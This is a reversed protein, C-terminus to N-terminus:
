KLFKVVESQGSSHLIQLYYIGSILNSTTLSIGNETSLVFNPNLRQGSSNFLFLSKVDKSEVYLHDYDQFKIQSELKNEIDKNGVHTDIIDEKNLLCVISRGNKRFINREKRQIAFLREICLKWRGM